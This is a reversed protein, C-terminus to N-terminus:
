AARMLQQALAVGPTLRGWNMLAVIRRETVHLRGTGYRRAQVRMQAEHRKVFAVARRAKNWMRPTWRNPPTEKLQALLPLEARIHPLSALRSYPSRHWRRIQGATMNITRRFERALADDSTPRRSTRRM